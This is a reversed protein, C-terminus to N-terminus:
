TTVKQYLSSGCCGDEGTSDIVPGIAGYNANSKEGTFIGNGSCGGSLPPGAGEVCLQGSSQYNIIGEGSSFTSTSLNEPGVVNVEFDVIPFQYASPVPVTVPNGVPQDNNYTDRVTLTASTINGNSDNLAIEFRYGAPITTSDLGTVIPAYASCVNPGGPWCVNPDNPNWYQVQTEILNGGQQNDGHVWIIYQMWYTGAPNYANLQIDFGGVSNTGTVTSIMDKTVLFSVTLNQIPTNCNGSYLLANNASSTVGASPCSCPPACFAGPGCVNGCGGCNAPDTNLNVCEGYCNVQGRPCCIGCSPLYPSHCFPQKASCPVHSVHWGGCDGNPQVGPLCPVCIMVDQVCAGNRWYCGPPPAPYPPWPCPPWHGVPFPVPSPTGSYNEGAVAMRSRGSNRYPGSEADFGALPPAGVPLAPVAPYEWDSFAQYQPVFDLVTTEATAPAALRYHGASNYVSAEATFRPIRM